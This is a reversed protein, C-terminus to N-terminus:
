VLVVFSCRKGCGGRGAGAVGILAVINYLFVLFHQPDIGELQM